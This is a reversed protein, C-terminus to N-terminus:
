GTMGELQLVFFSKCQAWSFDALMPPDPDGEADSFFVLSKQIHVLNFQGRGYKKEFVRLLEDL